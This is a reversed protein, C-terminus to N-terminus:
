EIVGQTTASENSIRNGDADTLYGEAWGVLGMAAFLSEDSTGGRGRPGSRAARPPIPDRTADVGQMPRADRELSSGGVLGPEVASM